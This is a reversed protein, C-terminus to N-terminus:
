KDKESRKRFISKIGRMIRKSSKGKKQKFDDEKRIQKKPLDKKPSLSEEKTEKAKTKVVDDDTKRTTVGASKSEKSISGKRKGIMVKDKEILELYVLCANDGRRISLPIIRTYGGNRSRFRKAINTFLQSVLQHNCLVAFAKRRSALTDKKGLTILRDVLRRAERAKAKTTCVRQYILVSKAVDRITANRLTSNRGFKNVKYRM